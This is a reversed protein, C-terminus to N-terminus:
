NARTWVQTRGLLSIGVYGRVQMTGDTQMTLKCSYTKGSDPDYITGDSWVNSSGDQVFGNLLPLGLIKRTRLSEDPNNSDISDQGNKDHPNKLWVITGCLKGGCDKIQVHAGGGGTVWTGAPSPSDQAIASQSTALAFCVIAFFALTLNRM